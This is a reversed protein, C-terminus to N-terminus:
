GPSHLELAVTGHRILYFENAPEGERFLYDKAAFRLNRACGSIAAGFEPGLGSFFPQELVIRELGQM